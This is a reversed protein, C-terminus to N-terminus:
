PFIFMYAPCFCCNLPKQQKEGRIINLYNETLETSLASSSTEAARFCEQNGEPLTWSETVSREVCLYRSFDWSTQKMSNKNQTTILLKSQVLTILCM